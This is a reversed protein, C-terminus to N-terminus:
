SIRLVRTPKGQKSYAAFVDPKEAKLRKSDITVRGAQEKWTVKRPYGDLQYTGVDYDGLMLRLKNKAEDMTTQANKIVESLEDIKKLLPGAEAGLVLTEAKGGRFKNTLAYTCDESGDVEPMTKSEVLAWFNKEAELLAAIDEENRPIEKWVFRNGGILAAIYWKEAGTVAMYHQCQVYYADPIEDGDWRKAAFGNATKCELGANEGVVMRDVSALLYPINDHQLLGRRRVEKGTRKTFEQAVVEELVTGWYVYENDSLDEPEVQGTKELWLSFTSKWPSLGVISAADSGGIGKNRQALWAPRDAMQEVTMILKAM